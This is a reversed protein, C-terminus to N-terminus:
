TSTFYTSVNSAASDPYGRPFTTMHMKGVVAKLDLVSNKAGIHRVMGGLKGKRDILCPNEFCWEAQCVRFSNPRRPRTIHRMQKPILNQLALIKDTPQSIVKPFGSLPQEITICADPPKVRCHSLLAAPFCNPLSEIHGLSRPEGPFVANVICDNIVSYIVRHRGELAPADCRSHTRHLITATLINGFICCESYKM